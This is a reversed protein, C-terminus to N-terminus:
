LDTVFWGAASSRHEGVVVNVQAGVVEVRARGLVERLGVGLAIALLRARPPDALEADRLVDIAEASESHM